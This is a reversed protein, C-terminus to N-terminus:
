KDLIGEKKMYQYIIRRIGTSLNIEGESIKFHVSLANKDEVPMRIAITATKREVEVLGEKVKILRPDQQGQLVTKTINKFADTNKTKNTKSM